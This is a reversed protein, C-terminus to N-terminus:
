LSSPISILACGLLEFLSTIFPARILTSRMHRGFVHGKFVLVEFLETICLPLLHIHLSNVIIGTL